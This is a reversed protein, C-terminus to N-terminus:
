VWGVVYGNNGSYYTQDVYHLAVFPKMWVGAVTANYGIGYLTNVEHFNSYDNGEASPLSYTGYIHGYLNFGSDGLYYRGTTKFTYRQNDGPQATKSNFPNELDFFGYIEGWSYGAGGELEIYAFDDKHSSGGSKHTTSRTWDLYNMSINAFGWQYEAQVAPALTIATLAVAGILIKRM